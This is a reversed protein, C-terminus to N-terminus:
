AAKKVSSQPKVTAPAEKDSGLEVLDNFIKESGDKARSVLGLAALKLQNASTKVDLSEPLTERLTKVLTTGEEQKNEGTKVLEDFQKSSQEAVKVVLGRGAKIFQTVTQNLQEIQEKVKNTVQTM